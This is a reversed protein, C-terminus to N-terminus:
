TLAKILSIANLSAPISLFTVEINIPPPVGDAIFASYILSINSATFCLYRTSPLASIVISHLGPVIFLSFARM